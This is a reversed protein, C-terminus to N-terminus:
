ETEKKSAPLILDAVRRSTALELADPVVNLDERVLIVDAAELAVHPGAAM